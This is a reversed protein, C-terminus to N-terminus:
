TYTETAVRRQARSVSAPGYAAQLVKIMKNTAKKETTARQDHAEASGPGGTGHIGNAAGVGREAADPRAGDTNPSNALTARAGATVVSPGAGRGTGISKRQRKQFGAPGPGDDGKGDTM